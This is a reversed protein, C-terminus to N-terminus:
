SRKSLFLSSQMGARDILHGCLLYEPVLAALEDRTLSELALPVPAHPDSAM